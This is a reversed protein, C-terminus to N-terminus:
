PKEDHVKMGLLEIYLYKICLLGRHELYVVRLDAPLQGGRTHGRQM